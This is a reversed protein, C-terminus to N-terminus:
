NEWWAEVDNIENIEHISEAAMMHRRLCESM